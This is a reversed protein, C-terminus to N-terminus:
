PEPPGGEGLAARTEGDTASYWLYEGDKLGARKPNERIYQRFKAFHEEDRVLHDFSDSQWFHGSRGLERNLRVATYRKWAQCQALMEAEDPFAALLHVHNPMVVFDTLHYRAGDFFRLNEGVTAALAPARLPCSGHCQDLTVEWRRPFVRNFEALLHQPLNRLRRRWDDVEPDVGHSRLWNAREALWGEIWGSPMSDWTRWTIFCVTGSQLWHPLAREVVAFPAARDFFQIVPM